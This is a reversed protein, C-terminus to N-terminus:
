RGLPRRELVWGYFATSGAYLVACPVIVWATERAAYLGAGVMVGVQVLGLEFSGATISWKVHARPTMVSVHNGIALATLLAAIAAAPHLPLTLPLAIAAYAAHKALLVRWGRLPLLSYRESGRICDLAFLAQASTSLAVCVVLTMALSAEFPLEPHFMRYVITSVSFLLGVYPDLLMLMERLNKRVLEGFVGPAMRFVRAPFPIAFVAAFFILLLFQPQATWLVAGVAVWTAPSLLVSSLRVATMERASLPWAGVREVPLRRLPDSCLPALAVLGVLLFIFPGAGGMGFLLILLFLNNASLGKLHRQERLVARGLAVTIAWIRAM